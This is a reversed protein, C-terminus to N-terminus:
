PASAPVLFTQTAGPVAPFGWPGGGPPSRRCAFSSKQHGYNLQNSCWITSRSTAPELGTPWGLCIRLPFPSQPLEPVLAPKKRSRALIRGYSLQISRMGGSCSTARELRAPRVMGVAEPLGSRNFVPKPGSLEGANARSTVNWAVLFALALSVINRQKVIDGQGRFVTHIPDPTPWDEYGPALGPRLSM